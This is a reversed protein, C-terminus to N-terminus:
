ASAPSPPIKRASHLFRGAPCCAVAAGFGSFRSYRLLPSPPAPCHNIHCQRLSSESLFCILHHRLGSVVARGDQFLVSLEGKLILLQANPIEPYLGPIDANIYLVAGGYNPLRDTLSRDAILYKADADKVMFELREVPYSPDLPQYGAGSKLVGLSAIPIFESRPILVSVVNERGIGKSKLFAAVNDTIQDLEKYTLTKDLCVAAIGDPTKEAQRRFLTVM